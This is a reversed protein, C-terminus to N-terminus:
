CDVALGEEFLIFVQYVIFDEDAESSKSRTAAERMMSVACAIVRPEEWNDADGKDDERDIDASPSSSDSVAVMARVCCSRRRCRLYEGAVDEEDLLYAVAVVVDVVVVADLGASCTRPPPLLTILFCNPSPTQTSL